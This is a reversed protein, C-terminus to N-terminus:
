IPPANRISRMLAAFDERRFWGHKNLVDKDLAAIDRDVDDVVLIIVGSIKATEIARGINDITMRTAIESDKKVLLITNASIRMKRVFAKAQKANM